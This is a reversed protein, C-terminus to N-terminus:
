HYPSWRSRCWVLRERCSARGIQELCMEVLRAGCLGSSGTILVVAQRIARFGPAQNSTSPVNRNNNTAGKSPSAEEKKQFLGFVMILYFWDTIWTSALSLIACFNKHTRFPSDPFLGRWFSRGDSDKKKQSKRTTTHNQEKPAFFPNIERHHCYIFISSTPQM